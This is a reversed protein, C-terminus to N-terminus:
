LLDQGLLLIPFDPMSLFDHIIKQDGLQFELPQLFAQKQSQRSMSTVTVTDPSEKTVGTNMVSYTAGTDVLFDIPKNGVM